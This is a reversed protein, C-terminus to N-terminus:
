SARLRGASAKGPGQPRRSPDETPDEGQVGNQVEDRALVREAVEVPTEEAVLAHALDLLGLPGADGLQSGLRPRLVDALLDPGRGLPGVDLSEEPPGSGGPLCPPVVTGTQPSLRDTREVESPGVLEESGALRGPVD